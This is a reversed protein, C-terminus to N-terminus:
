LTVISWGNRKRISEVSWAAIVPFFQLLFYGQQLRIGRTWGAAGHTFVAVLFSAAFDVAPIGTYHRRLLVKQGPFHWDGGQMIEEMCSNTIEAAPSLHIYYAAIAAFCAYISILTWREVVSAPSADLTTKAM